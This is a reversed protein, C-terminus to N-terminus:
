EDLLIKWIVQKVNLVISDNGFIASTIDQRFRGKYM